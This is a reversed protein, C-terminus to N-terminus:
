TGNWPLAPANARKGAPIMLHRRPLTRPQSRPMGPDFLRSSGAWALGEPLGGGPSASAALIVFLVHHSHQIGSLHTCYVRPELRQGAQHEGLTVVGPPHDFQPDLRFRM